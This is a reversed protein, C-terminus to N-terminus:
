SPVVGSALVETLYFPNGATAQHLGAAPRGARAALEDVARPSLPQLAVRAVSWPPLDNLMQQRAAHSGPDDDRFSLVLM